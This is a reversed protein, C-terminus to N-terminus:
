NRGGQQLLQRLLDNGEKVGQKIEKVDNQIHQTTVDRIQFQATMEKNTVFDGIKTEIADVRPFLMALALGVSGVSVFIHWHKSLWSQPTQRELISLIKEEVENSM